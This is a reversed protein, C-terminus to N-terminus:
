EIPLDEEDEATMDRYSQVEGALFWKGIPAEVDGLPDELDLESNEVCMEIEEQTPKVLQWQKEILAIIQDDISEIQAKLTAECVLEAYAKTFSEMEEKGMHDFQPLERLMQGMTLGKKIAEKAVQKATNM